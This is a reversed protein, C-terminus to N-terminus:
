QQGDSCQATVIVQMRPDIASPDILAGQRDHWVGHEHELMFMVKPVRHESQFTKELTRQRTRVWLRNKRQWPALPRTEHEDLFAAKEAMDMTLMEDSALFTIAWFREMGFTPRVGTRREVLDGLEELSGPNHFTEQDETPWLDPILFLLQGIPPGDVNMRQELHTLRSRALRKVTAM